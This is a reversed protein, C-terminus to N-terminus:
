FTAYPATSHLAYQKHLAIWLDESPMEWGGWAFSELSRLTPCISTVLEAVLNEDVEETDATWEVSNPYVALRRIHRSLDPRKSLAVLTSKCQKNTKLEVNSYLFPALLSQM